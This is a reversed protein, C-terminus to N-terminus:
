KHCKPLYYTKSNFYSNAPPDVQIAEYTVDPINFYNSEDTNNNWWTTRTGHKVLNSLLSKFNAMNEDGYTDYLIGDYTSLSDKINYWDDEIITVNSKGSAWSKAREIIQPHNEIITHSSISNAQIYNASIGMGFGIELIDGGETCVYDASAKMVSDEWDMMVEFETGEDEFSIKDSSFILTRDKYHTYGM